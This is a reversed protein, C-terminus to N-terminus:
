KLFQSDIGKTNQTPLRDEVLSLMTLADIKSLKGELQRDDSEFTGAKEEIKKLLSLGLLVASRKRSKLGVREAINKGCCRAPGIFNLGTDM